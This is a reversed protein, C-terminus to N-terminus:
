FKAEVCLPSFAFFSIRSSTVRLNRLKNHQSAHM